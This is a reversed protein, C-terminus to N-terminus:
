QQGKTSATLNGTALLKKPDFGLKSILQYLPLLAMVTVSPTVDTREDLDRIAAADDRLLLALRAREADTLHVNPRDSKAASM